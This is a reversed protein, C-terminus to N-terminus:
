KKPRNGSRRGGRGRPSGGRRGSRSRGRDESSRPKGPKFDAPFDPRKLKYGLFKEIRAFSDKDWPSVFTVASGGLNDGRSTRGIRHVYDEPDSPVDFNIILEINDIDIGRSLIDTAVIVSAHGNRFRHMVENREEQSLDSHMQEVSHGQMRLMRAAEKVRKKAALFVICREPRRENLLSVLLSLKDDDSVIFASQSISEPPRSIAINVEKPRRMIKRAFTRIQEPMTASFMVTQVGKKPLLSQIKLIDESFGMDLMRDAEDLILFSVQSLDVSNMDIHSLLRGPTAVIIDAGKALARRQQEYEIGDTGGYIPQANVKVYYAFGDIQRDIQQALERTPAMIVCNVHDKPYDGYALESLIPLLYAATKGTGTQACAIIDEGDMILPITAAQVPSPKGYNMTEVADEVDPHLGFDYFSDIQSEQKTM